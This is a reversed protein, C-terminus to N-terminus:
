SIVNKDHYIFNISIKYMKLGDRTRDMDAIGQMDHSFYVYYDNALDYNSNRSLVARVNELREFATPTIPDVSWIDLVEYLTDLYKDQGNGPAHEIHLGAQVAAGQENTQPLEGIFIDTGVTGLGRGALYDAVSRALM